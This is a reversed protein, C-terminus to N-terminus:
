PIPPDTRRDHPACISDTYLPDKSKCTAKCEAQSNCPGRNHFNRFNDKDKSNYFCFCTGKAKAADCAETQEAHMAAIAYMWLEKDVLQRVKQKEKEERQKAEEQQRVQDMLALAADQRAKEAQKQPDDTTPPQPNPNTFPAPNGPTTPM